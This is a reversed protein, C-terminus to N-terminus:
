AGSREIVATEAGATGSAPCTRSDLLVCGGGHVAILHLKGAFRVAHISHQPTLRLQEVTELVAGGGRRGRQWWGQGVGPRAAMRLAVVLLIVGGAAITQEWVSM